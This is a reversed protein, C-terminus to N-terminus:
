SLDLWATGYLLERAFDIHEWCQALIEGRRMGSDLAAIILPRLHPAAAELLKMEEAVSIVFRSSASEHCSMKAKKESSIARFACGDVALFAMTRPLMTPSLTIAAKS